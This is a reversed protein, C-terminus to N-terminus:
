GRPRGVRAQRSLADIASAPAPLPPRSVAPSGLDAFRLHEAAWTGAYAVGVRPGRAIRAAPPPTGKHVTLDGKLLDAGDHARQLGLASAVLGPGSLRADWGDLPEGARILVAQPDGEEGCVINLMHHIGYILYIYAHGPPGYMTGTRRTKGARAHSALDHEGIYAETEVIRARCRTGDPLRRVLICGLLDKAVAEAGRAYFSRPLVVM